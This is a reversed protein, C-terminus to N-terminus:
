AASLSEGIIGQTELYNMPPRNGLTAHRRRENYYWMRRAIIQELEELSGAEMFLSGNETKFHSWFSEIWPNDMAGRESFSVVVSNKVVLERLWDYSTFVSDQDTHVVMGAM